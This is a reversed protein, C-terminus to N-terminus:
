RGGGGGATSGGASSGNGAQGGGSGSASNLGPGGGTATTGGRNGSANAGGPNNASSDSAGAGNGTGGPAITASNAGVGANNETEVDRGSGPGNASGLRGAATSDSAANAAPAAHNGSGGLPQVAPMGSTGSGGESDAVGHYGAANEMPSTKRLPNDLSDCAGAALGLGAIGLLLLVPNSYNPRPLPRGFPM